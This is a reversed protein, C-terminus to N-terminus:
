KLAFVLILISKCNRTFYTLCNRKRRWYHFVNNCSGRGRSKWFIQKYKENYQKQILFIINYQQQKSLDIAIMKCYNKFYNYDLLCGATYDDGRGTEINWISDYTILKNKVPQDFFNQGDIM